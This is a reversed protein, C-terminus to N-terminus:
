IAPANLEELLQALQAADPSKRHWEYVNDSLLKAGHGKITDAIVARPRDSQVALVRTLAALDHGDVEVTDCGFARFRDAPNDLPMCRGQSKNHDYIITLNALGLQVAVMVSEWVTGENSEGDGVLTFVRQGGGGLRLGLAMGVAIGIGHGLSGTSAEIGPLKLRDPHCGFRSNYSGFAAVESAPFYGEAALVAYLGLAAHGKSLIFRDREPWDPRAPDHRMVAYVARLSEVVSFCTPVHGHGSSHSVRLIDARIHRCVPDM